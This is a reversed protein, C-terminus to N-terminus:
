GIFNKAPTRRPSPTTRLSSLTSAMSDIARHADVRHKRSNSRFLLCCCSFLILIQWGALCGVGKGIMDAVSYKM